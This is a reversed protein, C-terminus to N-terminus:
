LSISKIDPNESFVQIADAASFDKRTRMAVNYIATGDYQREIKISLVQIQKSKLMELFSTIFEESDKAIIRLDNDSYADNGISFRHFILQIAVVMAAVLLGLAYMGCGFAMGAAATAWIGAATTLGKVSSGNRFIVGAGLFSIGSVIQAAIRATDAGRTGPYLVGAASEMDSFGYKSIIMLLASAIAIICHTRIGAEKLRKTREFGIAGGCVGALAIRLIYIWISGSSLLAFESFLGEM